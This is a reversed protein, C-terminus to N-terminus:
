CDLPLLSLSSLLYRWRWPLDHGLPRRPLCHRGRHHHIDGDGDGDSGQDGSLFGEDEVEDKKWLSSTNMGYVFAPGILFVYM